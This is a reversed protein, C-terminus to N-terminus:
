FYEEPLLIDTARAQNKGGAGAPVEGAGQRMLSLGRAKSKQAKCLSNHNNERPKSPPSSIQVAAPLAWSSWCVWKQTILSCVRPACLRGGRSELWSSWPCTSIHRFWKNALRNLALTVEEAEGKSSWEDKIVLILPM